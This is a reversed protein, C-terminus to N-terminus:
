GTVMVFLPVASRVTVASVRLPVLPPSNEMSGIVRGNVTGLPLLTATPTRLAGLVVPGFAAVSVIAFLALLEVLTEKLPLPIADAIEIEGALTLKPFTFMPALLAGEVIVSHFVPVAGRTIELKEKMPLLTDSNVVLAGAENVMCGFLVLVTVTVNLGCVAPLLVALRTRV